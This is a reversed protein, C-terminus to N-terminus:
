FTCSCSTAVIIERPRNFVIQMASLVLHIKNAQWRAACCSYLSHRCNQGCVAGHMCVLFVCMLSFNSIQNLIKETIWVHSSHLLFIICLNEGGWCDWWSSFLLYIKPWSNPSLHYYIGRCLQCIRLQSGSDRSFRHNTVSSGTQTQPIGYGGTSTRSM